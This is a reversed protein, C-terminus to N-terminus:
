KKVSYRAVYTPFNSTLIKRTDIALKDVNIIDYNYAMLHLADPISASNPYNEIVFKCRNIAAIHSKIDTYYLAVYFEHRALTNKLGVLKASADTSYTSDPYTEILEIFYLYADKVSEVDRQANDTILDDLISSSKEEAIIGRLYYAYPTSAINPHKKIFKELEITARNYKKQKFLNYAIDLRAQIAYKSNPYAALILEYEEIGKDLSGSKISGEATEYLSKPSLGNAAVKRLDKEEESFSCGTIFFILLYVFLLRISM